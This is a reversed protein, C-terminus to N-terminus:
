LGDRNLKFRRLPNAKTFVKVAMGTLTFSGSYRDKKHEIIISDTGRRIKHGKKKFKDVLKFFAWEGDKIDEVVKKKELNFMTFKAVNNLSEAPWIVKRSKIPGHEYAIYNEDYHFEMRSLKRGLAHPKLYFSTGLFDGKSTFFIKRISEVNLMANMFDKSIRMNSGDITRYKYTGRRTNLKVFTSVYNKYFTDVIGNKKFFEEFDQVRIDNKRSRKVLPYRGKIKDNYFGLVEQKYQNSIHKKTRSLLYEWDNKLATKFWKDVPRPLASIQMIIPEHRGSVRDTVITYADKEPTVSGYIATMEQYVTNLKLLATELKPTPKNDKGLLNNYVSFYERINKVNTNKIIKKAKEIANQSAISAAKGGKHTADVKIQLKEAPTYILTNEKLMHLVGIIPSTGSTLVTLQNNIESISKYNPIKLSSLAAVWHKKYDIFYHNQVKAYMANLEEDTLETSYGVVWNNAVLKKILEKGDAIIVDEFGKKTYFGPVIHDSGEFASAYSGLAESFRFDRLNKDKAENKLEKYVLAEQGFELLQKRSIALTEERLEYPSFGYDLLNSFHMNLDNQTANMNPYLHSWATALWGILFDKDRREENKLMTYAKISEWTLDYDGISASVQEEIFEAIRPLLINELAEKYHDEIMKNRDSVKFYAVKWISNSMNDKNEDQLKKIQNLAVLIEKFDSQNSIIARTNDYKLMAKESKDLSDLRSNFDQVWYIIAIAVILVSAVLAGIHKIRQNKKYNTDMKIIDAEPFIIDSLVKQIFMGKQPQISALTSKEFEQSVPVENGNPVSTFYIGRLMLPKRYRTQAFGIDVFMNLKEFLASFENCFLLIKSRADTDWERNVKDLVASNLRQLLAELEPQIVSTDISNENEDFTVGLVEEKEEESIGTFYEKFGVINDVKSVLLYIPINSVFAHSIEDFRDRLDKAYQELEKENKEMLTDVSITLVIGNIPRKWRKRGFLKLFSEWLILDEESRNNSVYNGPMDVFIAHEAFYWQFSKTSGVETVSRNDYNINLPFDLGSNELISTKGEKGSGVMLYWPLEYGAIQKNKYISSNKLIRMAENFRIKLDQVKESTISSYEKKRKLQERINRIKQKFEDKVFLTYLLLSLITGFFVSLGILMRLTLSKLSEFLYPSVFIILITTIFAILIIWFFPNKFLSSQKIKSM